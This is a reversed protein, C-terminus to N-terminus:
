VYMCCAVLTNLNKNHHYLEVGCGSLNLGVPMCSIAFGVSDTDCNEGDNGFSVHRPENARSNMPVNGAGGSFDSGNRQMTSM